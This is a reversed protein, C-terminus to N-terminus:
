QFAGPQSVYIPCDAGLPAFLHEIWQDGEQMQLVADADYVVVPPRAPRLLVGIMASDLGGVVKLGEFNLDVFQRPTM